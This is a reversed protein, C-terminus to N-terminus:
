VCRCRGARMDHPGRDAEGAHGADAIPPPFSAQCTECVGREPLQCCWHNGEVAAGPHLQERMICCLGAADPTPSCGRAAEALACPSACGLLGLRQNDAARGLVWVRWAPLGSSVLMSIEHLGAEGKTMRTLIDYLWGTGERCPTCQGCSEVQLLLLLLVGGRATM